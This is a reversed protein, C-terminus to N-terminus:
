GVLINKHSLLPQVYEVREPAGAWRSVRDWDAQALTFEWTFGEATNHLRDMCIVTMEKGFLPELEDVMEDDAEEVKVPETGAELVRKKSPPSISRSDSSPNSESGGSRAGLVEIPPADSCCSVDMDSLSETSPHLSTRPPLLSSVVANGSPISPTQWVAPRLSFPPNVSTESDGKKELPRVGFSITGPSTSRVVVPRVSITPYDLAPSSGTAVTTSATAAPAPAAMETVNRKPTSIVGVVVHTSDRKLTSPGNGLCPEIIAISVVDNNLAGQGEVSVEATKGQEKGDKAQELQTGSPKDCLSTSLSSPGPGSSPTASLPTAFDSLPTSTSPASSSQAVVVVAGSTGTASPVYDSVLRHSAVQPVSANQQETLTRGEQDHQPNSDDRTDENSGQVDQDDIVMATEETQPLAQMPADVEMPADAPTSMSEAVDEDIVIPATSSGPKPAPVPARDTIRLMRPSTSSTRIGQRLDRHVLGPSPTQTKQLPSTTNSVSSTIAPPHPHATGTLPPIPAPPAQAATPVNPVLIQAAPSNPIGDTTVSTPSTTAAPNVKTSPSPVAGSSAQTTTPPHQAVSALKVARLKKERAVQLDLQLFDLGASQRRRPPKPENQGSSTSFVPVSASIHIPTQGQPPPVSQLVQAVKVQETSVLTPPISQLNQSTLNSSAPSLTVSTNEPIKQSSQPVLGPVTVLSSSQAQLSSSAPSTTLSPAPIRLTRNPEVLAPNVVDGFVPAQSPPSLRHSEGVPSQTAQRSLTPQAVAGSDNGEAEPSPVRGPAPTPLATPGKLTSPSGLTLDM